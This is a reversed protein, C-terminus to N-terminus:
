QAQMALVFIRCIADPLSESAIPMIWPFSQYGDESRVQVSWRGGTLSVIQWYFRHQGTKPPTDWETALQELLSMAQSIDTPWHEFGDSLNEPDVQEPQVRQWYEPTEEDTEPLATFRGGGRKWWMRGLATAVMVRLQNPTAAEVELWSEYERGKIM